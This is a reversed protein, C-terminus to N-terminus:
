ERRIENNRERGEGKWGRERGDVGVSGRERPEPTDFIGAVVEFAGYVTLGAVDVLVVRAFFEVVHAVDGLGVVGPVAVGGAESDPLGGVEGVFGEFDAVPEDL